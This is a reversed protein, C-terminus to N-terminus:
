TNVVNRVIELTGTAVVVGSPTADFVEAEWYFTGVLAATDAPVLYVEFIGNVADTVTLETPTTSRKELIPATLFNGSTDQRSLAWKVVLGTLDKSPSGVSDEDTVTIRLTRLNNAYMTVAQDTVAM